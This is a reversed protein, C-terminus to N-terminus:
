SSQESKFGLDSKHGTSSTNEMINEWREMNLSDYFCLSMFLNFLSSENREEAGGGSEPGLATRKDKQTFNVM